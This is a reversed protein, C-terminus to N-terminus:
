AAPEAAQIPSGGGVAVQQHQREVIRQVPQAQARPRFDPRLVKDSKEAVNEFGTAIVTVRIKGLEAEAVEVIRDHIPRLDARPGEYLADLLAAPNDYGGGTEADDARAAIVQATVHGLEHETKLWVIREKKSVPGSGALITLWEDLSKGTKEPLNKVIADAMEKPSKGM